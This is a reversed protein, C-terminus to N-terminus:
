RESGTLMKQMIINNEVDLVVKYIYKVGFYSLIGNKQCYSVVKKTGIFKEWKRFINRREEGRIKKITRWSVISIDRICLTYSQLRSYDWTFTKNERSKRSLTRKQYALSRFSVVLLLSPPSLPFLYSAHKVNRSGTVRSCVANDLSTLTYNTQRPKTGPSPTISISLDDGREELKRFANRANM